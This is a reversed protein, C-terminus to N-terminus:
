TSSGLRVVWRVPAESITSRVAAHPPPFAILVAEGSVILVSDNVRNAFLGSYIAPPLAPACPVIGDGVCLAHGGGVTRVLRLLTGDGRRAALNTRSWQTHSM